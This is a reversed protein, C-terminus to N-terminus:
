KQCAANTSLSQQDNRAMFHKHTLRTHGICLWSLKVEYQSFSNHASEWEEIHPQIKHLKGTSNGLSYIEVSESRLM